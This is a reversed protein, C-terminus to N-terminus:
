NKKKDLISHQMFLAELKMQPTHHISSLVRLCTLLERTPRNLWFFNLTLIKIKRIQKFESKKSRSRALGRDSWALGRNIRHDLNKKKTKLKKNIIFFVKLKLVLWSKKVFKKIFLLIKLRRKKINFFNNIFLLMNFNKENEFIYFKM